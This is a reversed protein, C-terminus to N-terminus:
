RACRATRSAPADLRSRCPSWTSSLSGRRTAPTRVRRQRRERDDRRARDRRRVRHADRDRVLSRRRDPDARRRCRRSRRPAGDRARAASRDRRARRAAARTTTNTTITTPVLGPQDLRVATEPPQDGSRCFSKWGIATEGRIVLLMAADCTPAFRDIADIILDGVRDRDTSRRIARTAEGFTTIKDDGPGTEGHAEARADARLESPSKHETETPVAVRRIAVRALVGSTEHEADGLAPVYRRRERASQSAPVASPIALDSGADVVADAPAADADIADAELEALATM